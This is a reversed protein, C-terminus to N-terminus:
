WRGRSVRIQRLSASSVFGDQDARDAGEAIWAKLPLQHGVDQEFSEGPGVDFRPLEFEQLFQQDLDVPAIPEPGALGCVGPDVQLGNARELIQPPQGERRFVFEDGVLGGM